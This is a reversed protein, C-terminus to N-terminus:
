RRSQKIDKQQDNSKDFKHLMCEYHTAEQKEGEPCRTTYLMQEIIKCYEGACSPKENPIFCYFKNDKKNNPDHIAWIGEKRNVSRKRCERAKEESNKM